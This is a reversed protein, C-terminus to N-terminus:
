LEPLCFLLETAQNSQGLALKIKAWIKLSESMQPGRGFEGMGGMGGRSRGGGMPPMGRGGPTGGARRQRMQSPDFKATEFGVGITKGPQAGVAFPHQETQVLPIKLEYILLGSSPVAKVEIGKAEEIKM